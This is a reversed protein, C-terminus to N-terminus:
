CSTASVLIDEQICGGRGITGLKGGSRLDKGRPQRSRSGVFSNCRRTGITNMRECRDVLRGVLRVLDPVKSSARSRNWLSPTDIYAISYAGEQTVTGCIPLGSDQDRLLSQHLGRSDNSARASFLVDVMEKISKTLGAQLLEIATGETAVENVINVKGLAGEAGILIGGTGENDNTKRCLITGSADGVSELYTEGIM